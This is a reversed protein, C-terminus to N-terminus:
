RISLIVKKATEHKPKIEIISNNKSILQVLGGLDIVDSIPELDIAVYNDVFFCGENTIAFWGDGGHKTVSPLRSNLVVVPVCNNIELNRGTKNRIISAIRKKTLNEFLGM